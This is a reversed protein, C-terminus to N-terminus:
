PKGEKTGTIYEWRLICRDCILSSPLAVNMRYTGSDWMIPYKYGQTERIFLPQGFCENTETGDPTSLQCMTFEFYGSHAAEIYIEVSIDQGM